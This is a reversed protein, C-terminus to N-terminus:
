GLRSCTARVRPHLRPCANQLTTKGSAPRPTTVAAVRAQARDKPSNPGIRIKEPAVRIRVSTSAVVTKKSNLTPFISAATATESMITAALAIADLNDRARAKWGKALNRNGSLRFNTGREPRKRYPQRTLGSAVPPRAPGETPPSHDFQADPAPSDVFTSVGLGLGSSLADRPGGFIDLTFPDHDSM